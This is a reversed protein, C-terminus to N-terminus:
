AAYLTVRHKLAENILYPNRAARIDVLDVKRGFLDELAALVEFYPPAAEPDKSRAFAILLDIDSRAPDFHETAASGFLDLQRVNFRRCLGVVDALHEQVQPAM